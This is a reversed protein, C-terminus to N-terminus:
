EREALPEARQLLRQRQAVSRKVARRVHRQMQEGALRRALHLDHKGAVAAVLDEAAIAAVGEQPAERRGCPLHVTEEDYGHGIRALRRGGIAARARQPADEVVLLYAPEGVAHELPAVAYRGGGRELQSRREEVVAEG